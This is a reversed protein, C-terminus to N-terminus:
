QSLRQTGALKVTLVAVDDVWEPSKTPWPFQNALARVTARFIFLHIQATDAAVSAVLVHAACPLSTMQRTGMTDESISCLRAQLLYETFTQKPLPSHIHVTLRWYISVPAQGRTGRAADQLM